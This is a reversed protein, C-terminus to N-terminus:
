FGKIPMSNKYIFSLLADMFYNNKRSPRGASLIFAGNAPYFLLFGGLGNVDGRFFRM